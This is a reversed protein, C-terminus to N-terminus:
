KMLEHAINSMSAALETEGTSLSVLYATYYVISRQLKECLDIGGNEIRPISIYRARKVYVTPGGTCSYFELVQGIPQTTIAVVPKQPCGRVGGFRSQQQAYLPDDESIAVTVAHSWDSMQFSVLRLFDDPLEIFGMGYGVRSKWGVTKGFAKGGDLLHSPAHELVIRAADALQREIQEDITLAGIDGGDSLPTSSPDYGLAIRVDRKLAEVSYRMSNQKDVSPFFYPSSASNGDAPKM